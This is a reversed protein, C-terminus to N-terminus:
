KAVGSSCISDNGLMRMVQMYSAAQGFENLCECPTVVTDGDEAPCTAGDLCTLYFTDSSVNTDRGQSIVGTVGVTADIKPRKVKCAKECTEISMDREPLLIQNMSDNWSGDENKRSDTYALNTINDASSQIVTNYRKKVDSFDFERKGCVYTRDVEWWPKCITMNEVTGLFERCGPLPQLGTTIFNQATTVGDIREERLRCNSDNELALCSNTINEVYRDQKYEFYYSWKLYPRQVGSGGCAGGVPVRVNFGNVIGDITYTAGPTCGKGSVIQMSFLARTLKGASVADNLPLEFTHITHWGNSDMPEHYYRGLTGYHPRGKYWDLLQLKYTRGDPSRWIQMDIYHETYLYTYGTNWGAAFVSDSCLSVTGLDCTAGKLTGGDPCTYTGGYVSEAPAVYGGAIASYELDSLASTSVYGSASMPLPCDGISWDKLALGAGPTSSVYVRETTTKYCGSEGCEPDFVTEAGVVVPANMLVGGVSVGPATAVYGGVVANLVLGAAPGTAAYGSGTTVVPCGGSVSWSKFAFGPAAQGSVYVEQVETLYCGGTGCQPDFTTSMSLPVAQDFATGGTMVAPYTDPCMQGSTEITGIRDISCTRTDASVGGLGGSLMSYMSNPDQSQASRASGADAEVQSWNSYYAQQQPVSPVSVLAAVKDKAAADAKQTLQGSYTISVPDSLVSTITVAAAAQMAAVAGGGLDKMLVGANKWALQNGCSSNICYCGGLQMTNTPEYGLKGDTGASWKYSKCNSWTGPTCSIFGNACVGSIPSTISFSHDFVGNTDLDQGVQLMSLDGSGSPQMMLWLFKSSSDTGQIAASFSKSGDITQMQTANNTLPASINANSAASSGFRQVAVSGGAAGAAKADAYADAFSQGAVFFLMAAAFLISKLM